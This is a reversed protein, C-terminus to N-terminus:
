TLASVLVAAVAAVGSLLCAVGLNQQARSLSERWRVAAAAYGTAAVLTVATALAAAWAPLGPPLVLSLALIATGTLLTAEAAPSLRWTATLIPTAVLIAAATAARAALLSGGPQGIIAPPSLSAAGFSVALMATVATAAVLWRWGPRARPTAAALAGALLLAVVAIDPGAGSGPPLSPIPSSPLPAQAVALDLLLLVFLERADFSWLGPRGGLRAAIWGSLALVLGGPLLGLALAAQAAGLADM